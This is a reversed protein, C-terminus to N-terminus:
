KLSLMKKADMLLADEQIARKYRGERFFSDNYKIVELWSHWLQKRPNKQPNKSIWKEYYDDTNVVEYSFSELKDKTEFIMAREPKEGENKNRYGVIIDANFAYPCKLDMNIIADGQAMENGKESRASNIKAGNLDPFLSLIHPFVNYIAPATCSKTVPLIYRIDLHNVVNNKLYNEFDISHVRQQTASDLLLSKKRAREVLDRAQGEELVLPKEVIVNKGKELAFQAYKYHTNDPSTVVVLGVDDRRVLERLRSEGVYIRDDPFRDHSIKKRFESLNSDRKSIGVPFVGGFSDELSFVTKLHEAGIGAGIIAVGIKNNMDKM